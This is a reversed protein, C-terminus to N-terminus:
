KVCNTFSESFNMNYYSLKILAVLSFSFSTKLFTVINNTNIIIINILM